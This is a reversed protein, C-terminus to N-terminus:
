HEELFYRSIPQELELPHEQIGTGIDM